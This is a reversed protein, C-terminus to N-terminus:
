CLSWSFPRLITTVNKKLWSNTFKWVNLGWFFGSHAEFSYPTGWIRRCNKKGTQKKYFYGITPELVWYLWYQSQWCNTTTNALTGRAVCPNRASKTTNTTSSQRPMIRPSLLIGPTGWQNMGKTHFKPYVTDSQPHVPLAWLVENCVLKGRQSERASPNNHVM